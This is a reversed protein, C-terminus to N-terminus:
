KVAVLCPDSSGGPSSCAARHGQTSWASGAPSVSQTIVTIKIDIPTPHGPATAHYFCFWDNISPDGLKTKFLQYDKSDPKEADFVILGGNYAKGQAIDLLDPGEPCKITTGASAGQSSLTVGASLVLATITLFSKKRFINYNNRM